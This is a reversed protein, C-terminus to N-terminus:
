SDINEFTGTKIIRGADLKIIFDCNKLTSIRHAIMITTVSPYFDEIAQIVLEETKNDLASTAEDLILVQSDRYLARAIGIRQRQGGSLKVGREGVRTEYKEPQDEIFKAIQAHESVAKVRDRDILHKELGFAINELVTADSLFINQPVHSINKQWIYTSDRDLSKNDICIKGRSPMLLGMIIDLLTSKGSGTEGIIGVSSGKFINLSINDLIILGDSSYKFDVSQLEISREFRIQHSASNRSLSPTKQDLLTLVDLLSSNSGHIIAYSSYGMQMAPLLRQAGILLAAFTPLQNELKGELSLFYALFGILVIGLTEILPKPLNAIVTNSSLAKQLEYDADKYIKVFTDQTASLIADRIGGLGETLTKVIGDRQDAIIVSFRRLKSFSFFSIIGYIVTFVTIAIFTISSDIIILTFIILVTLIASNILNLLLMFTSAVDKVKSTIASIIESSNRSIHISYPQYISRNYVDIGLDHATNYSYQTTAKLVIIRIAGALLAAFLFAITFPLVLESASNIGLINAIQSALNNEMVVEPTLLIGIFPLVLGLSMAESIGGLFMLFILLLFKLKRRKSLHNWLRGILAFNNINVRDSM